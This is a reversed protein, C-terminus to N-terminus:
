EFIHDLYRAEQGECDFLSRVHWRETLDLLILSGLKTVKTFFLFM